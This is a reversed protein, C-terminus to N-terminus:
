YPRVSRGNRPILRPHFRPLDQGRRKTTASAASTSSIRLITTGVLLIILMAGQSVVVAVGARIGLSLPLGFQMRFGARGNPIAGSLIM